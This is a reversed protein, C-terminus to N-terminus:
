FTGQLMVSSPGVGLQLRQPRDGAVDGSANEGRELKRARILMPMGAGISVGAGITAITVGMIQRFMENDSCAPDVCNVSARIGIGTGLLVAGCGVATWGAIRLRQHRDRDGAEASAPLAFLLACAIVLLTTERTKRM